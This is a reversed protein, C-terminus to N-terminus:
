PYGVYDDDFIKMGPMIEDISIFYEIRTSRTADVFPYYQYISAVYQQYFALPKGVFFNMVERDDESHVPDLDMKAM